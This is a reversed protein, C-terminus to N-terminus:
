AGPDPSLRALLAADHDYLDPRFAVTGDARAFATLYVIFVPVARRLSVERRVGSALATEVADRDWGPGLVFEALAAPREVRICGHSFARKTAAFLEGFPTDHLYVNYDNPFM